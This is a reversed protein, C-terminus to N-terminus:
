APQLSLSEGACSAGTLSHWADPWVLWRTLDLGRRRGDQSRWVPRVTDRPREATLQARM